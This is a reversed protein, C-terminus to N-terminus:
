SGSIDKKDLTMKTGAAVGCTVARGLNVWRGHDDVFVYALDLGRGNVQVEYFKPDSTQAVVTHDVVLPKAKKDGCAACIEQLTTGKKLLAAAKDAVAKENWACQDALAPTAAALAFAIAASHAASVLPLRM